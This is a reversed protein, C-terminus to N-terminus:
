LFVFNSIYIGWSAYDRMDTVILGQTLQRYYGIAGIICIILLVAVWLRGKIGFKKPLLDDIIKQRASIDM